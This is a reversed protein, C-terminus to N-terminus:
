VVDQPPAGMAWIGVFSFGPSKTSRTLPIRNWRRLDSVWVSTRSLDRRRPVAAVAADYVQGGARMLDLVGDAVVEIQKM